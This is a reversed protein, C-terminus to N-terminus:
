TQKKGRLRGLVAWAVVTGLALAFWQVAYAQSKELGMTHPSWDRDGFGGPSDPALYLVMPFLEAGFAEALQDIEPYTALQPWSDARLTDPAGLMAGPHRIPELHGHISLGADLTPVEPLRSRDAAMPLWGRNVVLLTSSIASRFPTLVHVGPQGRYVRNDILVHRKPDFKGQLILRTYRDAGSAPITNLVPAAEYSQQLGRKLAARDLQWFGLWTFAAALLVLLLTAGTSPRFSVPRVNRPLTHIRYVGGDVLGQAPALM